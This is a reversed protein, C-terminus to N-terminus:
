RIATRPGGISRQGSLSANDGARRGAASGRSSQATNHANGKWSGRANSTRSYHANVEERKKRLVLETGAPAASEGNESINTGAMIQKAEADRRVHAQESARRAEALRAGVRSSFAEYFRRKVVRKDVKKTVWEYEKANWVTVIEDRWEDTALYQECADVMQVSLHAFMAETMEIDSPMGFAIVYLSNHAINFKLDQSRGIAMVLECWVANLQKRAEGVRITKTTPEERKQEKALAQRAIALDISNDAAIRGAVRLANDREEDTSAGDALALAKAVKAIVETPPM